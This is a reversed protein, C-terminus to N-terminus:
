PGVVAIARFDLQVTRVRLLTLGGINRISDALADLLAAAPAIERYEVAVVHQRVVDGGGEDSRAHRVANVLAAVEEGTGLDFIHEGVEPHDLIRRILQAQAADDVNRRALDAIFRDFRCHLGCDLVADREIVDHAM